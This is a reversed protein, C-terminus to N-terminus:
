KLDFLEPFLIKFVDDYSHDPQINKQKFAAIKKALKGGSHADQQILATNPWHELAQLFLHSYTEKGPFVTHAVQILKSFKQGVVCNLKISLLALVPGQVKKLRHAKQSTKLKTLCTVLCLCTLLDNRELHSRNAREQEFALRLFSKDLDTLQYGQEQGFLDFLNRETEHSFVAFERLLPSRREPYADIENLTQHVSLRALSVGEELQEEYAQQRQEYTQQRAALDRQRQTETREEEDIEQKIAKVAGEVDFFFVKYTANDFTLDHLDVM